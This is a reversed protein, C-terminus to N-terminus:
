EPRPDGHLDVEVHRRRDRVHEGRLDVEGAAGQHHALRVSGRPGPLSVLRPTATDFTGRARVGKDRRRHRRPTVIGSIATLRTPTRPKMASATSTPRIAIARSWHWIAESM